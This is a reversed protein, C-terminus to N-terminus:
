PGGGPCSQDCEKKIRRVDESKKHSDLIGVRSMNLKAVLLLAGRARGRLNTQGSSM